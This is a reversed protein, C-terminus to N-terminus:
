RQGGRGRGRGEILAQRIRETAFERAKDRVHQSYAAQLAPLDADNVAVVQIGVSGMEDTSQEGWTVRRPPSSPNRPNDASNDYSVVGDLRTGKPLVVYDRYAYQEQWAFDWDQIWLLNKVDGNPFTATLKMERGIYHAHAATGFAKVDVPLVFSDQITFHKEGPPIEVGAVAGFLPPLQVGTFRKTPAKDTFYLGVVSAEKEAKGSPHFHTSLILDSGKPVFYALGDPLERAQGGLAWGGLGGTIQASVEAIDPVPETSTDGPGRRGTLLTLLDSMNGRGVAGRAIALGGGMAGAFGPRGDKGDEARATGTGDLFFLSHHVVGRASPRFDIAKVWKNETLNLPLVFNRYIDRGYAPVEFAEPMSVILDPKGLQWGEIFAPMAPLKKADGEPMGAEVWRQLVAVQEDTLRRDAKFAYDSPGAKWPPMRHSGTVAAILKGHSKVDQYNMLTFPAAEGPRHCTTCHNFVIPAVDETFTVDKAHVPRVAGATFLGATIGIAGIGFWLRRNM